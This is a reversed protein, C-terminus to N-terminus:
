DKRERLKQLQEQLSVVKASDTSISTELEIKQKTVDSLKKRQKDLEKSLDALSLRIRYRELINSRLYDAFKKFDDWNKNSPSIFNKYGKTAAVYLTAIDPGKQKKTDVKFYFDLADDQLFEAKARKFQMYPLSKKIIFGKGKEKDIHLSDFYDEIGDKVDGESMDIELYLAPENVSDILLRSESQAAAHKHLFVIATIFLLKKFM